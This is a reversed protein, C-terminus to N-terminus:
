RKGRRKKGFLMEELTPFEHKLEEYGYSEGWFSFHEEPFWPPLIPTKPKEPTPLIPPYSIDPPSSPPNSPPSYPPSSPPPTYPPYSPPSYPPYSDGESPPEYISTIESISSILSTISSDVDDIISVRSSGEEILHISSGEDVLLISSGRGKGRIYSSEKAPRTISSGKRAVLPIISSEEFGLLSSTREARTKRFLEVKANIEDVMRALESRTPLREEEVLLRVVPSEKIEPYRRAMEKAYSILETEIRLGKEVAYGTGIEILDRIDKIRGEHKPEIRGVGEEVRLVTAGEFKRAAQESTKLLNVGEAEVPSQRRFAYAIDYTPYYAEGEVDFAGRDKSFIEIAKEGEIYVKAKGQGMKVEYSVGSEKLHKELHQTFKTPDDVIVEIDKPQRSMYERLQLKQAVSGYVTVDGKYSNIAKKVPGRAKEPIAESLVEFGEPEFLPRDTRYVEKAVKYGSSFVEKEGFAEATKAFFRTELPSYATVKKGTLVDVPAPATGKSVKIGEATRVVTLLPTRSTAFTWGFRIPKLAPNATGGGAIEVLQARRPLPTYEGAKTIARGTASMALAEGALAGIQSPSGSFLRIPATGVWEISGAVIDRGAGLVNGGAAKGVVAAMGMGFGVAGGVLGGSAALEQATKAPDRTLKTPLDAVIEFDKGWVGLAVAAMVREHLPKDSSLLAREKASPEFSTYLANVKKVAEVTEPNSFDITERYGKGLPTPKPTLGLESLIPIYPKSTEIPAKTLESPQVSTKRGTVGALGRGKTVQPPTTDQKPKLKHIIVKAGYKQEITSAAEQPSKGQAILKRFEKNAKEEITEQQTPQKQQSEKVIPRTPKNQTTRDREKRKRYYARKVSDSREIVSSPYSKKETSEPRAEKIEARTPKAQQVTKSPSPNVERKENQAARRLAGDMSYGSASEKVGTGYRGTNGGASLAM